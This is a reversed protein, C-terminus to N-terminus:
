CARDVPRPRRMHGTPNDPNLEAILQLAADGDAAKGVPCADPMRDIVGKLGARFMPHDDVLLVRLM